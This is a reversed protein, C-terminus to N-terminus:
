STASGKHEDLKKELRTTKRDIVVLYGVLGTLIVVLIAVVVYIKGESRLADAMEVEQAQSATTALLTGLTSVIRKM